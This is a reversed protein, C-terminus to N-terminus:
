RLRHVVASRPPGREGPKRATRADPTDAAVRETLVLARADLRAAVACLGVHQVAVVELGFVAAWASMPETELMGGLDRQKRAALAPRHLQWFGAFVFVPLQGEVQSGPCNISSKDGIAWAGGLAM